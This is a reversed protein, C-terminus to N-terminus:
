GFNDATRGRISNQTANLWVAGALLLPFLGAIRYLVESFALANVDDVKTLFYEKISYFPPMTTYYALSILCMAAIFGVVIMGNSM